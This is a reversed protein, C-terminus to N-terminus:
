ATVGGKERWDVSVEHCAASLCALGEIPQVELSAVLDASGCAAALDDYDVRVAVDAGSRACGGGVARCRNKTPVFFRAGAPTAFFAVLEAM